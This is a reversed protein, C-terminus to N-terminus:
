PWLYVYKIKEARKKRPNIKTKRVKECKAGQKLLWLNLM